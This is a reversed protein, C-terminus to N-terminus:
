HGAKFNMLIELGAASSPNRAKPARARKTIPEHKADAKREPKESANAEYEAFKWRAADRKQTREAGNRVTRVREAAYFFPAIWRSLM